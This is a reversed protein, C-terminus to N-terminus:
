IRPNTEQDDVIISIRIQYAFFYKEQSKRFTSFLHIYQACAEVKVSFGEMRTLTVSGQENKVDSPFTHIVNSKSKYFYSNTFKNYLNAMFDELSEALVLCKQKDKGSLSVIATNGRKFINQYDIVYINRYSMTHM